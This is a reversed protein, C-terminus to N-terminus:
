TVPASCNSSVIDAYKGQDQPAEDFTASWQAFTRDGDTVPILEFEALYNEVPCAPMEFNYAFAYHSDDLMLLRERIKTGNGLTFARVCGISDADRGDEITCTGLGPVWSPLAGFDRVLSWVAEVPADIVISAYAQAM